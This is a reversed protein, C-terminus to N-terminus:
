DGAFSQATHLEEKGMGRCVEGHGPYLDKFELAELRKLSHILASHSGTPLDWRGVGGVFLTDGSFLTSGERDFLCMSGVTHGPTHVVQMTADGVVVEDGDELPTVKVRRLKRGFMSAATTDGDGDAIAEADQAHAYVKADVIELLSAVGGVHDFHRHTLIISRIEVPRIHRAIEKLLREHQMGTGTDILAPERGTILYVNSDSM